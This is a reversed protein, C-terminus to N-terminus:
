VRFYFLVFFHEIFRNSRCWDTKKVNTRSFNLHYCLDNGYYKSLSQYLFFCCNSYYHSQLHLTYHRTFYPSIEETSCQMLVFGSLAFINAHLLFLCSGSSIRGETPRQSYCGDTEMTTRNYEARRKVLSQTKLPKHFYHKLSTAGVM